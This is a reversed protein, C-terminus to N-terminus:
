KIKKVSNFSCNKFWCIILNCGGKNIIPQPLKFFDKKGDNAFKELAPGGPYGLNLYRLLKTLLKVLQTM